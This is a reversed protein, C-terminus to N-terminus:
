FRYNFSFVTEYTEARFIGNFTDNLGDDNLDVMDTVTEEPYGTYSTSASFDWNRYHWVFGGSLIIKSGTDMFQPTFYLNSESPSQDYGAGAM